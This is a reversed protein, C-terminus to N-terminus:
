ATKAPPSPSSSKPPAMGPPYRPDQKVPRSESKKPTASGAVAAAQPTRKIGGELERVFEDAFRLDDDYADKKRDDLLLAKIEQLEDLIKSWEAAHEGPKQSRLKRIAKDAAAIIRDKNDELEPLGLMKYYTTSATKNEIDLWTKYPDFEESMINGVQCFYRVWHVARLQSSEYM